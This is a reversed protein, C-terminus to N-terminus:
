AFCLTSNYGRTKASRVKIIEDGSRVSRETISMFAMPWSIEKRDKFTRHQGFM